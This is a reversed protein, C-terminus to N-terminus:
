VAHREHRGVLMRGVKLTGKLVKCFSLIVVRFKVIRLNANQVSIGRDRAAWELAEVFITRNNQVGTRRIKERFCRVPPSNHRRNAKSLILVYGAILRLFGLKRVM